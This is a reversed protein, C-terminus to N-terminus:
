GHNKQWAAVAYENVHACSVECFEKVAFWYAKPSEGSAVTTYGRNHLWDAAQNFTGSYRHDFELTVSDREFRQSTLKIRAGRSNTPGLFTVLILHANM